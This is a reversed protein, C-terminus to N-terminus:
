IMGEPVIEVKNTGETALLDKTIIVVKEGCDNGDKDKKWCRLSLKNEKDPYLTWLTALLTNCKPCFILMSRSEIFQRAKIKLDDLYALVSSEKDSKRTKRKIQLDDQIKSIDSRLDSMIKSIKELAQIDLTGLDSETRLKYLVQEYDELAIIAQVLARLSATDNVKMDSLDYDYGFEAIKSEIRREFATSPLAGQIKKDMLELFEDDSLNRYQRLNRMKKSYEAM